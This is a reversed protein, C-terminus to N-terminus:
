KYWNDLSNFIKVDQLNGKELAREPISFEVSSGKEDAPYCYLAVTQTTLTIFKAQLSQCSLRRWSDM